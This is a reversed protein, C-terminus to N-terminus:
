RDDFLIECAALGEDCDGAVMRPGICAYLTDLESMCEALICDFNSSCGNICGLLPLAELGCYETICPELEGFTCQVCDLSTDLTACDLYCQGSEFGCDEVCPEFGSCLTGDDPYNPRSVILYNLCMEDFTGEGWRVDRPELQEGNVVPQNAASNDYTCTMEVVDGPRLAIFQDDPYRYFQQWQFDWDEINVLCMDDEGARRTVVSISSGLTHMHPAVGILKGGIPLTLRDSQVSNPDGADIRIGSHAFPFITVLERPVEGEPLTWLQASTQDAPMEGVVASTNYHIQMVLQSGAEMLIAAGDPFVMPQGGPVWGAITTGGGFGPGGFCTYGVGPDAADRAAMEATDGQEVKYLLVHHVVGRQDPLVDTATIYTDEAFVHDLVLCRYDDPLLRDPTYAEDSQLVLTPPPLSSGPREAPAEYTSPDGEPFGANAWQEFAAVEADELRRDGLMPHCDPEPKWPPMRREVVSGAIVSGYAFAESYSTIAFPAVGGTAHCTACHTEVLGRISNHWTVLTSASDPAADAASDDGADPQERGDNTADNVDAGSADCGPPTCDAGVDATADPPGDGGTPASDAGCAALLVVLTALSASHAAPRLRTMCMKPNAPRACRGVTLTHPVIIPGRTFRLM